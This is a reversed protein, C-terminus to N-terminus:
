QKGGMDMLADLPQVEVGEPITITYDKMSINEKLDTATYTMDVGATSIIMELALGPLENPMNKSNKPLKIKETYWFVSTEGEADQLIAKKCKIGLIKKTENVLTVKGTNPTEEGLDDSKGQFAMDGMMGTMLMTMEKTDMNILVEQDGMSGMSNKMYTSTGDSALTMTAGQMMMAMMEGEEGTADVTLTYTVAFKSNQALATLGICLMLALLFTNKM